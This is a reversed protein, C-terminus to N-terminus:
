VNKIKVEHKREQKRIFGWRFLSGSPLGYLFMLSLLILKFNQGNLTIVFLYMIIFFLYNSIEKLYFHDKLVKKRITMLFLGLFIFPVWILNYHKLYVFFYVSFVFILGFLIRQILIFYKKGPRLEEPSIVSLIFGIPFGALSILLMLINTLLSM